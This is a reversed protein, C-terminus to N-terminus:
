PVLETSVIVRKEYRKTSKNFNGSCTILNLQNAVKPNQSFLVSAAKAEELEDVAMVKFVKSSDDGFEVKVEAGPKVKALDVFIGDQTRGDVHGDIVSLGKEGPRVSQTFWGAIHINNPVAVAKNQDIGVNQMYGNVGISPILIKKPDKPSGEWRYNQGPKQESPSSVVRNQVGGKSFSGRPTRSFILACLSVSVAVVM